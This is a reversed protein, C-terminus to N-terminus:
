YRIAAAKYLAGAPNDCKINNQPEGSQRDTRAIEMLFRINGYLDVEAIQRGSTILFWGNELKTIGRVSKFRNEYLRKLQGNKDRLTLHHVLKGVDPKDTDPEPRKEAYLLGSDLMVPDHVFFSNPYHAAIGGSKEVILISNLNLVSLMYLQESIKTVGNIHLWDRGKKSRDLRQRWFPPWKSIQANEEWFSDSIIDAGRWQWIVKGTADIEVVESMGKNAWGRTYLITNDALSDFDHSLQKDQVLIHAKGERSIELIGFYPILVRFSDTDASYEIDAGSCIKAKTAIDPLAASWVVKGERDVEIIRKQATVTDALAYSRTPSTGDDLVTTFLIESSLASGSFVLVLVAFLSAASGSINLRIPFM